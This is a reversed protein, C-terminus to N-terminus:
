NRTLVNKIEQEVRMLDHYKGRLVFDPSDEIAQPNGGAMKKIQGQVRKLRNKLKMRFQEIPDGKPLEILSKRAM